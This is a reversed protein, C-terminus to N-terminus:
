CLIFVGHFFIEQSASFRSGRFSNDSNYIKLGGKKIASVPFKMKHIKYMKKDAKQAVNGKKLLCFCM